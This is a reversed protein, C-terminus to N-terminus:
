CSTVRRTTGSPPSAPCRPWPEPRLQVEEYWPTRAGAPPTPLPERSGSEDEVIINAGDVTQRFIGRATQALEPTRFTLVLDNPHETSYEVIEAGPMDLVAAAYRHFAVM